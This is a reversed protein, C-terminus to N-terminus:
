KFFGIQENTGEAAPLSFNAASLTTLAENSMKEITNLDLSAAVSRIADDVLNRVTLGNGFNKRDRAQLTEMLAVFKERVDPAFHVGRKNAELEAIEFLEASNYDSFPVTYALRSKLGPNREIFDKMPEPYGAFIVVTDNRRNEMEQVIMNIAEDAFSGARDDVLSYAEDIFLVSGRAKKFLAQVKPATQGVFSAVLDARSVEYFDGKSLIGFEKMIKGFLRAVTTKATGPNGTFVMHMTPSVTKIDREQLTKQLRSVAIASHIIKKVETLGVMADLEALASKPSWVKAPEVAAIQTSSKVRSVKSDEADSDSAITRSRVVDYQPFNDHQKREDHWKEYSAIVDDLEFSEGEGLLSEADPTEFDFYGDKQTQRAFYTQAQNKTVVEDQFLPVFLMGGVMKAFQDDLVFENDTVFITLVEHRYKKVMEMLPAFWPEWVRSNFHYMGIALTGGRNERFINELLAPTVQYNQVLKDMTFMTVRSTQIREGEYLALVLDTLLQGRVGKDDSKVIYHVPHPAQNIHVTSAAIRALEDDLSTSFLFNEIERKKELAIAPSLQDEVVPLHTKENLIGMLNMNRLMIDRTSTDSEGHQNILRMFNVFTIEDLQWAGGKQGIRKFFEPIYTKNKYKDETAIVFTQRQWLTTM